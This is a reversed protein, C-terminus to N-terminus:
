EEVQKEVDLEASSLKDLAEQYFLAELAWSEIAKRANHASDRGPDIGALSRKFQDATLNEDGARAVPKEGPDEKRMKGCSAFLLSYGLVVPLVGFVFSRTVMM